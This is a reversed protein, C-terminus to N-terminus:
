EPKADTGGKGASDRAAKLEARLDAWIAPAKPFVAEIANYAREIVKRAEALEAAADLARHMWSMSRQLVCKPCVGHPVSGKPDDYVMARGCECTVGSPAAEALEAALADRSARENTVIDHAEATAAAIGVYESHQGGDRHIVALLNQLGSEYTDRQKEAEAVAARLAACEARSADLTALLAREMSMSVPRDECTKRLDAERKPSLPKPTPQDPM